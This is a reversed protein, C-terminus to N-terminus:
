LQRLVFQMSLSSVAVLVWVMLGLLIPKPGTKIMKAFNAGLGVGALAVVILYRGAGGAWGPLTPGLVGLTNLTAMMLFGFIFWPLIRKLDCNVGGSKRRVLFAFVLSIPIIMTTRALKTIAAFDGAAKSYSYGAAVVSSTDNIATGAWMGFGHDKLHILHGIAPFIVVAVVNFLFITSISFAIEDDDAGIIPAIAAIASGGCIGTGVGVLSTLRRGIGMRSGIFWAGLLAVSLSVLMVGLSDRGTNWIQSLSLNAGLVIIALQLVKKSCFSVGPRALSPFRVINGLVIGILIAFVPAGIIPFRKGLLLGALSILVCLIIGPLANWWKV